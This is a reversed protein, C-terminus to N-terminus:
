SQGIKANSERLRNMRIRTSEPMEDLNDKRLGLIINYGNFLGTDGLRPVPLLRTPVTLWFRLDYDCGLYTRLLAM